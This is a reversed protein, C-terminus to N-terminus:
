RVACSAADFSVGDRMRYTSLDHITRDGHRFSLNSLCQSVDYPVVMGEYLTSRGYSDRAKVLNGVVIVSSPDTYDQATGVNRVGCQM